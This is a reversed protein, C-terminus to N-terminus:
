INEFFICLLSITRPSMVDTQYYKFIILNRKNDFRTLM